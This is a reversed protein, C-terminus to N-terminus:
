SLTSTNNQQMLVSILDITYIHNLGSKFDAPCNSAELYSLCNHDVPNFAKSLDVFISCVYRGQDIAM